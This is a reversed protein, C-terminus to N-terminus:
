PDRVARSVTRLVSISDAIVRCAHTFRRTFRPGRIQQRKCADHDQAEEDDRGQVDREGSREAAEDARECVEVPADEEGFGSDGVAGEGARDKADDDSGAEAEAM